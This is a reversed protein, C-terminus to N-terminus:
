RRRRRNLETLRRNMEMHWHIESPVPVQGRPSNALKMLQPSTAPSDDLGPAAPSLQEPMPMGRGGTYLVPLMETEPNTEPSPLPQCERRRDLESQLEAAQQALDRALRVAEDRDRTVANATHDLLACREELNACRRLTADHDARIMEVRQHLESVLRERDLREVEEDRNRRELEAALQAIRERLEANQEAQNQSLNRIQHLDDTLRAQADVQRAVEIELVTRDQELQRSRAVAQEFEAERSSLDRAYAEAQESLRTNRAELDAREAERRAREEALSRTLEDRTSNENAIASDLQQRLERLSRSVRDFERQRKGQEISDREREVQLSGVLTELRSREAEAAERSQEAAKVESRTSESIRASQSRLQGIEDRAADLESQLNGVQTALVDDLNLRDHLRNTEARLRAYEERLVHISDSLAIRDLEMVRREALGDLLAGELATIKRELENTSTEDIDDSSGAAQFGHDCHNCIVPRGLYESRVRLGRDCQPCAMEIYRTM